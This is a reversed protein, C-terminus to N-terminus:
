GVCTVVRNLIIKQHNVHEHSQWGGAWIDGTSANFGHEESNPSDGLVTNNRIDVRSRLVVSAPSDGCVTNYHNDVRSRSVMSTPSDEFVSNNWNDM